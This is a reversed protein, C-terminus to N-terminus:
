PCTDLSGWLERWEPAYQELANSGSATRDFGIGSEDAKHYYVSTWDPRGAGKMDVWPGPGYHHGEAMIHTLGLPMSYRVVTERSGLLMRTITANVAPDSGFTMQTWERTIAESSLSHDWALRGYAYWNAQSLHHGTWNRDSGTNAVGAIFSATARQTLPPVSSDSDRRERAPSRNSLSGDIVRAVTAREPLGEAESPARLKDVPLPVSDDRREQAPGRSSGAYTDTDLVEKWLPALFALQTSQGLYEQTIQLEAALRTHPMKAFLPSFPERPMFDLPGNKIQIVVNDRFKGDLPAFETVAQKV